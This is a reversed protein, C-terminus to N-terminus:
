QMGAQARSRITGCFITIPSIALVVFAIQWSASFGLAMGVIM